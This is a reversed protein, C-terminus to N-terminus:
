EDPGGCPEPASSWEFFGEHGTIALCLQHTAELRNPFLPDTTATVALAALNPDTAKLAALTDKLRPVFMPQRRFYCDLLQTVVGGLILAAAQEDHEALDCVDEFATAAGYAGIPSANAAPLETLDQKAKEILPPLIQEPDFVVFGTAYMHQSIPRRDAKDEDFYAQIRNLPNVFIECPIAEHFEQIRTRFPARQIVHIDLDSRPDAVGRLITGTALIARVDFRAFISSVAHRLAKQYRDELDPWHCQEIM